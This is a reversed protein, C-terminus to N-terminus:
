MISSLQQPCSIVRNIVASPSLKHYSIVASSL